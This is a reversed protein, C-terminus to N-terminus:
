SGDLYDTVGRAEATHLSYPSTPCYQQARHKHHRIDQYPAESVAASRYLSLRHLICVKPRHEAIAVGALSRDFFFDIQTKYWLMGGIEWRKNVLGDQALWGLM